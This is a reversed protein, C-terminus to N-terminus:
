GNNVRLPNGTTWQTVHSTQKKWIGLKISKIRNERGQLTSVLDRSLAAYTPLNVLLAGKRLLFNLSEAIWSEELLLDANHQYGDLIDLSNSPPNQCIYLSPPKAFIIRTLDLARQTQLQDSISRLMNRVYDNDSTREQQFFQPPVPPPLVTIQQPPLPSPPMDVDHYSQASADKPLFSNFIIRSETARREDEEHKRRLYLPIYDGRITVPSGPKTHCKKRCIHCQCLVTEYSPARPM